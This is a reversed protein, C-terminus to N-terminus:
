KWVEKLLKPFEKKLKVPHLVVKGIRKPLALIIDEDERKKDYGVARVVGQRSWAPDVTTPLHYLRLTEAIRAALGPPAIGLSEAMRTEMVMGIAVAEGHTLGAKLSELAHGVTHGFNLVRREDEELPDRIVIRAKVEVAKVVLQNLAYPDLPRWTVPKEVLAEFLGADGIVAAKVIEAMGSALERRPLSRLLTTDIYLRFPKYFTGVLNKVGKFNIGNKGGIAADVMAVLTSPFLVLRVGRNYTAAAFGGVDILTGGGMIVFPTQRDAKIRHLTQWIRRVERYSKIEEGGRARLVETKSEQYRLGSVFRRIVGDPIHADAYLLFVPQFGGSTKRWGMHTNPWAM